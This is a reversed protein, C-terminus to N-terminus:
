KIILYTLLALIGITFISTSSGSVSQLLAEYGKRANFWGQNYQANPLSRMFDYKFNTMDKILQLNQSDSLSNLAKLTIPGMGTYALNFGANKNLWQQIYQVMQAGHGGWYAYAVGIAIADNKISNGWMWNVWLWYAIKRADNTTFKDRFYEFSVPLNVKPAVSQYTVWIIGHNTAGGADENAPRFNYGGETPMVWRFWADFAKQSM